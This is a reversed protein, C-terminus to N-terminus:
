YTRRASLPKHTGSAVLARNSATAHLSQSKKKLARTGLVKQTAYCLLETGDTDVHHPGMVTDGNHGVVKMGSRCLPCEALRAAKPRPEDAHQVQQQRRMMDEQNDAQLANRQSQQDLGKAFAADDEAKYDIPELGLEERVEPARMPSHGQDDVTVHLSCADPCDLACVSHRILSM